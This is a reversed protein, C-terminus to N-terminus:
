KQSPICLNYVFTPWVKSITQKTKMERGEQVWSMRKCYVFLSLSPPRFTRDPSLYPYYLTTWQVASKSGGGGVGWVWRRHIFGTRGRWWGEQRPACGPRNVEVISGRKEVSYQSIGKTSPSAGSRAMAGVFERIREWQISAYHKESTVKFLIPQKPRRSRKWPTNWIQGFRKLIFM